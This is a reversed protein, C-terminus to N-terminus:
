EYPLGVFPAPRWYGGAYIAGPGPGGAIATMTIKVHESAPVVIQGRWIFTIGLGEGESQSDHFWPTAVSQLQGECTWQSPTVNIATCDFHTLVVRTRTDFTNQWTSTHSSANFFDHFIDFEYADPPLAPPPPPLLFAM